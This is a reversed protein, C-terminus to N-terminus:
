PSPPVQWRPQSNVRSSGYLGVFISAVVWLLSSRALGAAEVNTRAAWRSAAAVVALHLPLLVIWRFRNARRRGARVLPVTILVAWCALAGPLAAPRGVSALGAVGTTMIATPWPAPHCCGTGSWISVAIGPALVGAAILVAETDPVAAWIGVIAAGLLTPAAWAPGRAASSLGLAAVAAICPVLLRSWWPLTTPVALASMAAGVLGALVEPTTRVWRAGRSGPPESPEATPPSIATGVATGIAPIGVAAVLVIPARSRAVLVASAVFPALGGLGRVARQSIRDAGLQLGVVVMGSALGVALETPHYAGLDAATM